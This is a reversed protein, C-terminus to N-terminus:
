RAPQHNSQGSTLLGHLVLNNVEELVHGSSLRGRARFWRPLWMLTGFLCGCVSAALLWIESNSLNNWNM